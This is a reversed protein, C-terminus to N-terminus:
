LSNKQKTRNVRPPFMFAQKNMLRPNTDVDILSSMVYYVNMLHRHCIENSRLESHLLSHMNGSNAEGDTCNTTHLKLPFLTTSLGTENIYIVDATSLELEQKCSFGGKKFSACTPM